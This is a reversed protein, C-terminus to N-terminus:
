KNIYWDIARAYEEELISTAKNTAWKGNKYTYYKDSDMLTVPGIHISQYEIMYCKKDKDIAIDFGAFPIDLKQFADRAFSLVEEPATHTFDRIGSGSARFDGKKVGRKMSYYKDGYVLIKYDGGLNPIFEELIFRSFRYDELKNKTWDYTNSKIIGKIVKKIKLKLYNFDHHVFEKKIIRYLESENHALFVGSSSCTNPRKVVIPYKIKIRKLDNTDAIIYSKLTDIHLTKRQIEQYGKNEHGILSSLGPIITNNKSLEFMIDEIYKKYDTIQNSTYVITEGKISDINNLVDHYNTKNVKYGFSELSKVFLGVDIGEYQDHKQRYKGESDLILLLEKKKM